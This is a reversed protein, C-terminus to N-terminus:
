RVARPYSRGTSAATNAATTDAQQWYNPHATRHCQYKPTYYYHSHPSSYPHITHKRKKEKRKKKKKKTKNRITEMIPNDQNSNTSTSIIFLSVYRDLLITIWFETILLPSPINGRWKVKQTCDWLALFYVLSVM